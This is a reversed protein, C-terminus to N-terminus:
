CRFWTFRWLRCVPGNSVLCFLVLLLSFPKLFKRDTLTSTLESFWGKKSNKEELFKQEWLCDKIREMEKKVVDENGRLVMFAKQAEQDLGKMLLGAPSEPIFGVLIFAFLSPLCECRFAWRWPMIAGLILNASFGVCYAGMVFSGTIKRVAPQGIESTCLPINVLSSACINGAIFRCIMLTPINTAFSSVIQTIFLMANDVMLSKKRGLYQCQDGGIMSGTIAGMKLLGAFWSGMEVNMKLDNTEPDQLIPLIIASQTYCCGVGIYSM